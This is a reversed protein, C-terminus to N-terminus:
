MVCKLFGEALLCTWLHAKPWKLLKRVPSVSSKGKWAKGWSKEGRVRNKAAANEESATAMVGLRNIESLGVIGERAKQYERALELKIERAFRTPEHTLPVKSHSWNPDPSNVGWKLAKHFHPNPHESTGPSQVLWNLKAVSVSCRSNPNRRQLFLLRDLVSHIPRLFFAMPPPKMSTM